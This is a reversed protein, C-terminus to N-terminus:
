RRSETFSQNEMLEGNTLLAVISADIVKGIVQDRELSQYVNAQRCFLCTLEPPLPHEAPTIVMGIVPGEEVENAM